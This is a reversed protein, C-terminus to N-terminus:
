ATAEGRAPVDPFEPARAVFSVLATPRGPELRSQEPSHKIGTRVMMMLLIVGVLFALGLVALLVILTPMLGLRKTKM